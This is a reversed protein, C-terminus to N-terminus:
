KLRELRARLYMLNEAREKNLKCALGERGNWAGAWYAENILKEEREKAIDARIYETPDDKAFMFQVLCPSIREDVKLEPFREPWNQKPDYNM